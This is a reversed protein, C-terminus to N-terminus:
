PALREAGATRGSARERKQRYMREDAERLLAEVSLREAAPVHVAGISYRLRWERGPVANVAEVEQELRALPAELDAESAGTLLVCFEDGGLRSVVDSDRFAQLLCRAIEILARDGEAHGHVDNIQKFGDLDLFLLAAPRNARQCGALAPRAIMEFGRRNSLGTLEDITALQIAALEREVMAALDDLIELEDGVLERPEPDILCLTGVKSGDPASLPRGAYFRIRPDGAVLPNDHFREDARADPVILIQDGLIAHGCFSVDRPTETADLGQRSKFWQRDADVLSVLAIPVGFLRRALRTVRDFREEAPTDLLNLAQLAGLRCAEDKPTPPKIMNAEDERATIMM